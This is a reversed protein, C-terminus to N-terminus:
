AQMGKNNAFLEAQRWASFRRSWRCCGCVPAAGKRPKPEGAQWAPLGCGDCALRVAGEPPAIIDPERSAKRRRRPAINM